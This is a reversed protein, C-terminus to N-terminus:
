AQVMWDFSDPLEGKQIGRVADYLEQMVPGMGEDAAEDGIPIVDNQYVVKNVPTVVVATGCAAVESLHQLELVSLPRREVQMGKAEALAM